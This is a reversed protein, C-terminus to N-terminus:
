AIREIVALPAVLLSGDELRLRAANTRVGSPFKQRQTFLYDIQGLSGEYSGSVVRVVAGPRLGLDIKLPKWDPDIEHPPLSIVLEPYIRSKISTTGSLLATVGRYKSLLNLTRVPMALTGLGETLMITLPPLHTLLIETNTSNLLEILDTHLFSELDRSSISSAVVGVIGSHQAQRLMSLNLPGPVVLIAGPPIYPETETGGAPGSLGSAQWIAIPGAVQRGAGLAGSVVAAQSEIVVGGRATVGLIKGRLGAPLVAKRIQPADKIMGPLSKNAGASPLSLRPAQPLPTSTKEIKELRMVPQEPQVEEGARVLPLCKLEYGGPWRERRVVISTTLSLGLPYSM